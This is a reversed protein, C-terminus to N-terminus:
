GRGKSEVGYHIATVMLPYPTTQKVIVQAQRDVIQDSRVPEPQGTFMIPSGIEGPERTTILEFDAEEEGAPAEKDFRGALVDFSEVLEVFIEGTIKRRDEQPLPMTEIVAEYPLGVVVKTALEPLTIQGDSVVATTTYGDMLVTVTEGELHSLGQVTDTPSSFQYLKSCDLFSTLQYDTWKSRELREVYRVTEENIVREITLYVRHESGEPICVVDLVDGGFDCETWGWVQQEQEWTFARIRSDDCRVWIISYPEPQYCMHTIRFDEFLHPAFITVDSSRYGEIEFTFGITRLGTEVRPQYFAVEGIVLPKPLVAGRGIQRRAGPPPNPVLINDNPGALSFINDSTGVLLRDMAIFSNILNSQGTAISFAISDNERQPRAFDMNEFDASRSAFIGNPSNTTRGFWLRQEWFGCRAPYNGSGDFPNYAEIPAEAYDPQFGDDTFSLGESEGIFGLSGTEHAKYIRYYQATGEAPAAWTITTFNRALETDNRAVAEASGRSEQGDSNVASVVYRYDQPFHSDGSNAADTNPMTRVAAVSTPVGIGPAFTIVSHLWDDHDNRVMKAPQYFEHTLFITDFSQAYDLAALESAAYPTGAVYIPSVAM